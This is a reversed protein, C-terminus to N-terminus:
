ECLSSALPKEQKVVYLQKAHKKEKKEKLGNTVGNNM